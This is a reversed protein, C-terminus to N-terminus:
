VEEKPSSIGFMQLAMGESIDVETENASDELIIKPIEPKDNVKGLFKVKSETKGGSIGSGVRFVAQVWRRFGCCWLINKDLVDFTCRFISILHQPSVGTCSLIILSICVRANIKM